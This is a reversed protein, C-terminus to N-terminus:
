RELWKLPDEANNKVWIEFHLHPQKEIGTDGVMGLNQGIQVYDDKQIQIDAVNAYVTYYGGYHNLLILTGIGRMWQIRSVIGDAVATVPSGFPARIDIGLSKTITRLEPHRYNGFKKVVKGRVPWIMKGQLEPFKSYQPLQRPIPQKQRNSEQAEILIKIEALSKEVESKYQKINKRINSLIRKRQEQRTELNKNQKDKNDLLVRTEEWIKKLRDKQQKIRIEKEQINTINRLDNDALAQQYKLWMYVQNFSKASLLIEIDRTHGYKYFYVLRAMYLEKLKQLEKETQELSKETLSIDKRKQKEDKQLQKILSRTLAIEHEIDNLLAITSAEQREQDEIKSTLVEIQRELQARQEGVDQAYLFYSFTFPVLIAFQTILKKMKM